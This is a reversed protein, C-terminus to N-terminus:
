LDTQSIRNRMKNEQHGESVPPFSFASRGKTFHIMIEVQCVCLNTEEGERM